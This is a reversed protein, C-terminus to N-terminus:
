SQGHDPSEETDTRNKLHIRYWWRSVHAVGLIAIFFALTYVIFGTLTDKWGHEVTIHLFVFVFLAWLITQWVTRAKSTIIRHWDGPSM